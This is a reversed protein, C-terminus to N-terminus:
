SGEVPAAEALPAIQGLVSGLQSLRIGYRDLFEGLTFENDLDESDDARLRDTLERILTLYARELAPLVQKCAGGLDPFEGSWKVLFARWRATTDQAAQQAKLLNVQERQVDLLQRLLDAVEPNPPEPLQLPPPPAVYLPANMAATERPNTPFIICVRAAFM